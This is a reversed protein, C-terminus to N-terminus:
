SLTDSPRRLPLRVRVCAPAVFAAEGGAAQAAERVIALGLGAGASAADRKHFREFVAEWEAAPVGAGQDSIVLEVSRLQADPVLAATVPGAGHAAANELLAAIMDRLARAAGTVTAADPAEVRITRGEADLLPEVRAAEERLLRALNVEGAPGEPAHEAHALNLLGAVMRTIDQLDRRTAEIDVRGTSAARQLRLDMVALPTRLAHAANATFRKEAAYAARLRDLAENFARALPRVETPLRDTSLRREPNAPGITEAERSARRLAAISLDAMLWVLGISLLVVLLIVILPLFDGWPHPHAEDLAGPNSREVTVLYGHPARVTLALDQDAGVVQLRSHDANALLPLRALSRLLNPSHAVPRGQPDFVTFYGAGELSYAERWRRPTRVRVFRGARDFVLGKTLDQAQTALSTDELTDGASLSHLETFVTLAAAGLLGAAALAVVLRVRLSHVVPAIPLVM